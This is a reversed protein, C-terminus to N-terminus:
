SGTVSVQVVEGFMVVTRVNGEPPVIPSPRIIAAPPYLPEVVTSLASVSSTQPWPEGVGVGVGVGVAVVVGVAVAVGEVVGVAVGVGVDVGVAVGLAVGVGLSLGVGLDRGVGGGRGYSWLLRSYSFSVSIWRLMPTKLDARTSLVQEKRLPQRNPALHSV